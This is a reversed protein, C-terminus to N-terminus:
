HYLLGPHLALWFFRDRGAKRGSKPSLTGRLLAKRVFGLPELLLASLFILVCAGALVLHFTPAAYWAVKTFAMVPYSSRMM